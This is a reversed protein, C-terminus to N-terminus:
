PSENSGNSQEGNTTIPSISTPSIASTPAAIEFQMMMAKYGELYLKAREQELQWLREVSKSLPNMEDRNTNLRDRFESMEKEHKRWAEDNTLTFQKWRRQDDKIWDNWEERFREESLRQMEAVENIRRELREGIRDFDEVIKKMQRYTETWSEFRELNRRIDDDYTGISRALDKIEQSHQQMILKQQEVFGQLEERRSQETNQMDLFRGENKLTLAEVREIKVRVGEILKQLDPMEAQIDAIRRSDQRRQEDLQMLRREPEDAKKALDEVRQQLAVLTTSIRDREARFATLDERHQELKDMRENLERIPRTMTERNFELRRELERETTLRKAETSELLQRMEGRMQEVLKSENGAPMFVSRMESHENELGNLQRVLQEILEQQQGIREELRAIANKDRRREEDLWEIMRVTQQLDMSAM